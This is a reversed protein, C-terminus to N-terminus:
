QITNNLKSFNISDNLYINTFINKPPTRIYKKGNKIRLNINIKKKVNKSNKNLRNMFFTNENKLNIIKKPIARKQNNNIKKNEKKTKEITSLRIIENELINLNNVFSPKDFIYPIFDLHLEYNLNMKNKINEFFHNILLLINDRNNNMIKLNHIEEKAKSLEKILNKNLNNHNNEKENIEKKLNNIIFLLGKEKNECIIKNDNFLKESKITISYIKNNLDNITEMLYKKEDILNLIRQQLQKILNNKRNLERNLFLLKNEENNKIDM